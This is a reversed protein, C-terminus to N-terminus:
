QKQDASFVDRLFFLIFFSLQPFTINECADTLRNFPSMSDRTRSVKRTVPEIDRWPPPTPYGSPLADRTSYRSPLTDPTGGSGCFRATRM